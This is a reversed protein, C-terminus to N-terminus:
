LNQFLESVTPSYVRSTNVVVHLLFAKETTLFTGSYTFFFIYPFHILLLLITYSSKNNRNFLTLGFHMYQLGANNSLKGLKRLFWCSTGAHSVKKSEFTQKISTYLSWHLLFSLDSPQFFMCCLLLPRSVKRGKIWNSTKVKWNVLAERQGKVRFCLLM